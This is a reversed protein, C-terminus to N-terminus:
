FYHLKKIKLAFIEFKLNKYNEPCNGSELKEGKKDLMLFKNKNVFAKVEKEKFINSSTLYDMIDKVWRSNWRPLNDSNDTLKM